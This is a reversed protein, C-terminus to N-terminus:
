LVHVPYIGVIKIGEMYSALLLDVIWIWIGDHLIDIRHVLVIRM